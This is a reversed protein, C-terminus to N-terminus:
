RKKLTASRTARNLGQWTMTAQDTSLDIIYNDNVIGVGSLYDKDPGFEASSKPDLMLFVYGQLDPQNTSRSPGAMLSAYISYFRNKYEITGTYEALEDDSPRRRDATSAPQLRITALNSLVTDKTITPNPPSAYYGLEKHNVQVQQVSWEGRLRPDLSKVLAISRERLTPAPDPVKCQLLGLSVAITTLLM